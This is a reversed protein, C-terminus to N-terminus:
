TNQYDSNYSLNSQKAPIPRTYKHYSLAGLHLISFSRRLHHWSSMNYKQDGTIPTTRRATSM